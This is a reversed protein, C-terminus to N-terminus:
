KPVKFGLAQMQRWLGEDLVCLGTCDICVFKSWQGRFLAAAILPKTTQCTGQLDVVWLDPSWKTKKQMMSHLAPLEFQWM